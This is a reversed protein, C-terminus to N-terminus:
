KPPKPTTTSSKPAPAPPKTVPASTAPPAPKTAPGQLAPPRPAAAPGGFYAENYDLKINGVLKSMLAQAREQELTKKIDQEVEPQTLKKKSIVKYIHIGGADDIPESVEGEKADFAKAQTVPINDRRVDKLETPPPTDTIKLDTYAQKQLQTFDANPAKAATAIKVGEAKVAAPDVKEQRNPPMKPIFIRQLTAQEYQSAHETFYKAIDAAPVNAAEQQIQRALAQSLVQMQSLRLVEQTEPKKDLGREQALASMVLSQAYANALERKRAEPAGVASALKELDARSIETKCDPSGAQKGPCFGNITVVATAPTVEAPKEAQAASPAPTTTTQPATATQAISLSSLILVALFLRM